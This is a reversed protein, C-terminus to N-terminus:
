LEAGSRLCPHEGTRGLCSQLVGWTGGHVGEGWGSLGRQHQHSILGRQAVRQGVEGGGGQLRHLQLRIIDEKGVGRAGAVGAAPANNSTTTARTGPNSPSPIRAQVSRRSCPEVGFRASTPAHKESRQGREGGGTSGKVRASPQLCTCSYMRCANPWSQSTSGWSCGSGSTSPRSAASGSGIAPPKVMRRLCARASRLQAPPRRAQSSSRNLAPWTLHQYNRGM